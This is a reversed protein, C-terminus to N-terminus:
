KGTRFSNNALPERLMELARRTHLLEKVAPMLVATYSM